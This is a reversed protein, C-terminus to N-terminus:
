YGDAIRENTLTELETFSLTLNLESPAGEMGKITTFTDGGYTVSLDTLACSSIKNVHTNEQDYYRYEISFESPYVLFFEGEQREPHMHFKFQKIIEQVNRYETENRPNFRYSFQFKRFGMSKFLQEKFPNNVKKTTSELAGAFNADGLGFEKPLNAAGVMLNRGIFESGRGIDELSTRGSALQGAVGLQEENWNASYSAAPPNNIHLQITTLLRVITNNPVLASVTGGALASTGATILPAALASANDGLLKGVQTTVLGATGIATAMGAVADASESKARNERAYEEALDEQYKVWLAHNSGGANEQSLRGVTANTRANIYFLVSHPQELEENKLGVNTPYSLTKPTGSYMSQLLERKAGQEYDSFEQQRQGETNVPQGRGQGTITVAM